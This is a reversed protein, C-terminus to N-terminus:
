PYEKQSEREPLTHTLPLRQVYSSGDRLLSQTQTKVSRHRHNLHRTSKRTSVDSLDEASIDDNSLCSRRAADM